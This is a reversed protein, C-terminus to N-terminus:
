NGRRKKLKKDLEKRKKKGYLHAGVATPTVTAAYIKAKKLQKDGKPTKLSKKAKKKDFKMKELDKKSLTKKKAKKKAYNKAVKKGVEKVVIYGAAALPGLQVAM